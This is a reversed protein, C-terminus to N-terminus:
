CCSEVQARPGVLGWSEVRRGSRSGQTERPDM